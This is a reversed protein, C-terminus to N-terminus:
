QVTPKGATAAMKDALSMRNGTTQGGKAKAAEATTMFGGERKITQLEEVIERFQPFDDLGIRGLASLASAIHDGTLTPKPAKAVKALEEMTAAPNDRLARCLTRFKDKGKALAWLDPSFKDKAARAAEGVAKWESFAREKTSQKWEKVRDAGDYRIAMDEGTFNANLQFKRGVLMMLTCSTESITANSLKRSNKDAEISAAMAVDIEAESMNGYTVAASAAPIVTDTGSAAAAAAAARKQALTLTAAM